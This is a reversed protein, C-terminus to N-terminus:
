LPTEEHDAAEWAVRMRWYAIEGAQGKGEAGPYGGTAALRLLTMADWAANSVRPRAPIILRQERADHPQPDPDIPTTTPYHM